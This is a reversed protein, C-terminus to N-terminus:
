QVMEAMICLAHVGEVNCAMGNCEIRSIHAPNAKRYMNRTRLCTTKKQEKRDYNESHEKKTEVIGYSHIVCFRYTGAHLFYLNPKSEEGTYM